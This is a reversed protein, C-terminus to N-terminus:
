RLREHEQTKLGAEQALDLWDLFRERSGRAPASLTPRGTAQAALKFSDSLYIAALDARGSCRFLFANAM